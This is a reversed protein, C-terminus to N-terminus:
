AAIYVVSLDVDKILVDQTFFRGLINCLQGHRYGVGENDFLLM